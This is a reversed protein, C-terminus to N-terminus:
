RMKISKKDGLICFLLPHLIDEIFTLPIIVTIRNLSLKIKIFEIKSFYEFEENDIEKTDLNM